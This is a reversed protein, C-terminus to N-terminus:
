MLKVKKKTQTQLKQLARKRKRSQKYFQILPVFHDAQFVKKEHLGEGGLKCFLIHLPVELLCEARPCIVQNRLVRQMEDGCDPFPFLNKKKHCQCPSIYVFFKVM